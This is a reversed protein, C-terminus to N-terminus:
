NELLVKIPQLKQNFEILELDSWNENDQGSTFHEFEAVLNDLTEYIEEILAERPTPM